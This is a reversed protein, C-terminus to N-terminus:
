FVLVRRLIIQVRTPALVVLVLLAEVALVLKPGDITFCLPPLYLVYLILDVFTLILQLVLLLLQIGIVRLLQPTGVVIVAPHQVFLLLVFHLISEELLQLVHREGVPQTLALQRLDLFDNM